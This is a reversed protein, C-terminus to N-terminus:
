YDNGSGLRGGVEFGGETCAKMADSMLGPLKFALVDGGDDSRADSPM